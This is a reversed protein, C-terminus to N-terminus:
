FKSAGEAWPANIMEDGEGPYQNIQEVRRTGSCQITVIKKVRPFKSEDQLDEWTITQPKGILGDIKLDWKNADIDPIGGHNRVFHLSNPPIPLATTLRKPSEGNYPFELVHLMDKHKEQIVRLWSEEPASKLPGGLAKHWLKWRVGELVPNQPFNILITECDGMHPTKLM